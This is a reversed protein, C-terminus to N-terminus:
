QRGVQFFFIIHDFWSSSFMTHLLKWGLFFNCLTYYNGVLFLLFIHHVILLSVQHRNNEFMLLFGNCVICTLKCVGLKLKHALAGVGVVHTPPPNPPLLQEVLKFWSYFFVILM